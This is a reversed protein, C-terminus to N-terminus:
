SHLFYYVSCFFSLTFMIPNSGNMLVFLLITSVQVVFPLVFFRSYIFIPVVIFRHLFTITGPNRLRSKTPANICIQLIQLMISSMELAFILIAGLRRLGSFIYTTVTLICYISHEMLPRLYSRLSQRASLFGENGGYLLLLMMSLFHFFLSHIQYSAQGLFFLRLATNQHDFDYDLAAGKFAFSGKLDWCYKTSAERRGFVWVPWWIARRFQILAWCSSLICFFLRFVATAYRPANFISTSQEQDLLYATDTHDEHGLSRRLSQKLMGLVTEIDDHQKNKDHFQYETSSLLHSSKSHVFAQLRRPALYRPVLLHVLIVRVLSLITSAFMVFQLDSFADQELYKKKLFQYISSTMRLLNFQEDVNSTFWKFSASTTASDGILNSYLKLAAGILTPTSVCFIYIIIADRVPSVKSKNVPIYVKKKEKKNTARSSDSSNSMKMRDEKGYEERSVESKM